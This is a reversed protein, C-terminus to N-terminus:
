MPSPGHCISCYTLYRRGSYHDLDDWTHGDPGPGAHRDPHAFPKTCAIVTGPDGRRITTHPCTTPRPPQLTSDRRARLADISQQWGKAEASTILSGSTLFGLDDTLYAIATALADATPTSM